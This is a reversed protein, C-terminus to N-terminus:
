INLTIFGNGCNLYNYVDDGFTDEHAETFGRRRARKMSEKGMGTGLCIVPRNTDSSILKCKTSNQILQIM